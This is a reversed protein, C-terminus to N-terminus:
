SFEDLGTRLRPRNFGADVEDSTPGIARAFVSAFGGALQPVAYPANVASHLLSLAGAAIEEGYRELLLDPLATADITPKMACRVRLVRDDTAISLYPVLRLTTPTEAFWRSLERVTGVTQTRWDERPYLTALETRTVPNLPGSTTEVELINHPDLEGDASDISLTPKAPIRMLPLDEAICRTNKCFVIAARRLADDIAPNPAGSIHPRVYVDFDRFAAM